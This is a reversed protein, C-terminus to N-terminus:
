TVASITFRFLSIRTHSIAANTTIQTLCLDPMETSIPSDPRVRVFTWFVVPFSNSAFRLHLTLWGLSFTVSVLTDADLPLHM